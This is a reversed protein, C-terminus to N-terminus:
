ESLIDQRAINICCRQLLDISILGDSELIGTMVSTTSYDTGLSDSLEEITIGRRRRIALLARAMLEIRDAPMTNGYLAAIRGRDDPAVHKTRGATMGLSRIFDTEGTIAEAVKKGILLNCGQSCIDDIRGPVAYVGRGYSSALNATMMGGGKIKSEILVTGESLGAIIRNRRLFHIALPATGPPYDTILACGPTSCLREAFDTHRLPYITEPGTAMVGITPLGSELAVRHACIDTGLALGSVISPKESSSGMARVLRTCWERGYPSLDRTGVVSVLRRNEWLEKDPTRGRIYLGLPPDSCEKLLEPYGNETWGTFRIGRQSLRALEELEAEARSWCIQGRYRSYPGLLTDLDKDSLSFVESASGLHSILALGIKPEFGFIRNLACLCAKEKTNDM